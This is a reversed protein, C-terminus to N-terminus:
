PGPLDKGWSPGNGGGKCNDADAGRGAPQLSQLLEQPMYGFIASKGQDADLMHIGGVFPDHAFQKLPDGPRGDELDDVPHRYLRSADMYNGGLLSMDM